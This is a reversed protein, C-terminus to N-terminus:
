ITGKVAKWRDYAIEVRKLASAKDVKKIRSAEEHIAVATAALADAKAAYKKPAKDRVATAYQSVGWEEVARKWDELRIRSLKASFTKNRFADQIRAFWVDANQAALECPNKDVAMIGERYDDVSMAIRESYRKKMLEALKRADVM